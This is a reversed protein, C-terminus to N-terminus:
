KELSDVITDIKTYLSGLTSNNKITYDPNVCAWDWESQHIDKYEELMKKEAKKDGQTAKKAIEFWEPTEGREVKITTGGISELLRVENRFRVDSIVYKKEGAEEIKKQLSYLWIDRHFHDRMVNTGIYQLAYRPTFNKIDLKESWWYDIKERWERSEQTNGELLERPWHFISATADKLSSAFSLTEYGHEQKLYDAVTGKGSGILGFVGIVM